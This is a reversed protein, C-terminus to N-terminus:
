EEIPFIRDAYASWNTAAKYADVSPGPVYFLAEPSSQFTSAQITPPTAARVTLSALFPCGYFANAKINVINAPIDVSALSKCERAFNAGIETVSEPVEIMAVGSDYLENGVTATIGAPLIVSRLAVCDSCTSHGLNTAKPLIMSSLTACNYFLSYGVTVVSEPLTARSLACCEAFVEDAISTITPPFSVVSLCKCKYFARLSLTTVGRPLVIARLTSQQLAYPSISRIGEPVILDHLSLVELSQSSIGACHEGIEIREISQRYGRNKQDSSSSSNALLCFQNFRIQGEIVKVTIVYRGPAAYEHRPTYVNVGSSSGTLTDPQTGDGWDVEVTGSIVGISFVPTTRGAPLNVYVRTKGDDTIYTMGIDVAGYKAVYAQAEALDWNWGQATLGPREPAAPLEKLAAFDEATYSHLLTGDYDILRVAAGQNLVPVPAAGGGEPWIAIKQLDIM